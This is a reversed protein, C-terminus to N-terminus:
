NNVRHHCTPSTAELPLFTYGNEIGWLIIREVADVSFGKVDHQLVISVRKSGIGEVVNDFVEDATKAGGADNSDVNWDFYQYGADQVAQTLSTMIGENFSSVKNSSGGPFRLLTTESGTKERILEQMRNLDQFYAEESAYIASYNHTASHIGVSHGRSVMEELLDSYQNCVVFFTAKVNYKDLLELLQRTYPGPGDDFTLYIVKGSPTVQQPREKAVVTVTREARTTNGFADSVTYTLIYDGGHYIDVTGEVTVQATLDGDCNDWATYGPEEYATTPELTIVSDGLLTLEPPTPDDYHLLRTKETRNGAQDEVWYTIVGDQESTHVMETLSGDYDDWATYGPEEYPQGPLVYLEQEGRLTLEPPRRDVIHIVRQAQTHYWLFDARYTLTYTGTTDIDVRGDRTLAADVAIGNKLLQTGHFGVSVGPDIFPSGYDLTMEMEGAPILDLSFRNWGFLAGVALTALLALAALVWLLRSLLTHTLKKVSYMMSGEKTEM